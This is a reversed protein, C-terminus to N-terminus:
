ANLGQYTTGKEIVNRLERNGPMSIAPM